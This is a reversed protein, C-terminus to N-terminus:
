AQPAAPIAGLQQMMALQDFVGWHELARGDNGFRIIDILRVDVRRGTPPMGMFAGDHRGTASVRAVVKDGSAIVDEPVMRLDPFATLYTRFLAIVGGKTPPLGPLEDHEVFNDAFLDGFADINGASILEYLRRMTTAHDM